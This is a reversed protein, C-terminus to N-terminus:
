RLPAPAWQEREKRALLCMGLVGPKVHWAIVELMEWTFAGLPGKHRAMVSLMLVLTLDWKASRGSPSLAQHIPVASYTERM